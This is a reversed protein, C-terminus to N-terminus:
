ILTTVMKHRQRERKQRTAFSVSQWLWVSAGCTGHGLLRPTGFMRACNLDASSPAGAVISM